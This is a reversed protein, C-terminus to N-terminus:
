ISLSERVEAIEAMEDTLKFDNDWPNLGSYVNVSTGVLSTKSPDQVDTEGFQIIGTPSKFRVLRKFPAM